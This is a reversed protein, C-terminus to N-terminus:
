PAHLEPFHEAVHERLTERIFRREAESAVRYRALLEKQRTTAVGAIEWSVALREFLFEVGRQWADERELGGAVVARYERRTAPSLSGRLTLVNGEADRYASAPPALKERQRNRRGV